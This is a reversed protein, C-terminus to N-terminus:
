KRLWMVAGPPHIPFQALTGPPAAAFARARVAFDTPAMVPYFWDGVIGFQMVALLLRGLYKAAPRLSGALTFLVGTWALMPFIYYRDGWGSQTMITWQPAITSVQPFALAAAFSLAAFLCVKRLLSPGIRWAVVCLSVASVTICLAPLSSAQWLRSALIAPLRQQGLLPAIVVNLAVIRALRLPAAGLPAAARVHLSALLVGSQILGTALLLAGRWLTCRSRTETWQWGAVPLLLLCFPGSLGCLLLAFTDFAQGARTAPPRSVLVLFALTALHWQSNTLNVFVEYSNPLGVYMLAFALRARPHPWVDQVRSSALFVPSLVQITLAVIAFLTPAAALSFPQVLIGGLRTVTQLYGHYPVVLSFLGGLYADPYWRWGDEGWFDAHLLAAPHRSVLLLAFLAALLVLRSPRSRWNSEAVIAASPAAELLLRKNRKKL